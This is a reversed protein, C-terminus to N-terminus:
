QLPESSGSLRSLHLYVDTGYGEMSILKLNGGFYQSYLRAIPLGYGFGAMPAKFDTGQFDQDAKEPAATTYMFTWVLPVASRRIGGGEDSIKITIDENGEAVIVKVPPFDDCDVGHKDVVARLSNKLVEFLMHNLHSPVYMFTLEKPCILHVPPGKFLGYHEECVYTANEIAERAIQHVNTKTCIIGVFDPHPELRNLAIHQGILVRIGIRSMYFRDLFTQISRDIHASSQEKKMELIGQAITTVVPDHRRKINALLKTFRENYDHVEPPWKITHDPNAYYRHHPAARQRTAVLHKGHGNPQTKMHAPLSPNPTSVPLAANATSAKTFAEYLEPSIEPKPFNILEEFSEAYWKKVKEISPMKNLNHPLEDLEKVRHALRIPLEEALFQSARLLTGQSPNQGFQVM